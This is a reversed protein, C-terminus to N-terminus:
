NLSLFVDCDSEFRWYTYTIFKHFIQLYGIIIGFAYKRRKSEKHTHYKFVGLILRRHFACQFPEQPNLEGINEPVGKLLTTSDNVPRSCDTPEITCPSLPPPPAEERPTNGETFPPLVADGHCCGEVGAASSFSSGGRRRDGRRREEDANYTSNDIRRGTTSTRVYVYVFSFGRWANACIYIYKCTRSIM